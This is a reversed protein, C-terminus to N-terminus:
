PARYVAHLNGHSADVDSRRYEGTAILGAEKMVVGLFALERGKSKAPLLCRRRAEHRVDSVTVGDPNMRALGQAIETLQRVLERRRTAAEEAAFMGLQTGQNM